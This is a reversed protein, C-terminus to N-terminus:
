GEYPNDYDALLHGSENIRFSPSIGNKGAPGTAGTAGAPGREGAPGAPGREGAPGTDGVVKGLDKIAMTGEKTVYKVMLNGGEIYCKDVLLGM